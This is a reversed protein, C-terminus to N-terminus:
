ESGGEEDESARKNALEIALDRYRSPDLKYLVESTYGMQGCIEMLGHEGDILKDEEDTRLPLSSLRAAIHTDMKSLVDPEDFLVSFIELAASRIGELERKQPITAGGIHYQGNRVEHFWIVEDHQTVITLSRASCEQFFFNIKTHYNGLWAEIDANKYSRNGRLKPHLNLYTTISVEIANDFSIMSMRRDFDEGARFHLEAHMILEFPGYAWPKLPHTM